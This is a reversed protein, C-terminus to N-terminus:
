RNEDDDRPEDKDSQEAEANAHSEAIQTLKEDATKEESLTEEFLNAAEEHGMRKAWAVITGYSAIEYHEVKQAAAILVADLSAEDKHSEMLEEGERLLGEMAECKKPTVSEGLSTVADEIRQIQGKTEELHDNFAERLEESQAAEAMKPLAETLQSEADLMDAIEELFAQHLPNDMKAASMTKKSSSSKGFESGGSQRGSGKSQESTRKTSKM